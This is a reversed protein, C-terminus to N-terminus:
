KRMTQTLGISIALAQDIKKLYHHKIHGIYHGLREKDISRIHELLVVSPKYLGNEAPLICHTPINAKSYIKSSLPAVITTPSYRNGIDNQLVVVPRMGGQESGFFPNLDAYFMDGRKCQIIEKTRREATNTQKM